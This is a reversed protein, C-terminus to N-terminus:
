QYQDITDLAALRSPTPDLSFRYVTNYIDGESFQPLLIAAAQRHM